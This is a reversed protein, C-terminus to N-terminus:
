GAEVCVVSLSTEFGAAHQHGGGGFSKAIESVDLGNKDSRLSFQRKGDKIRDFYVAGFPRGEALKGAIESVLTSANVVLVKHGCIEMEVANRVHSDVIQQDRRLIAEGQECSKTFSYDLYLSDWVKFDLPFSRLWANYERSHTLQWRWLDRDETYDVLLNSSTKRYGFFTSEKVDGFADILWEWALRAGSKEMDFVFMSKPDAEKRLTEMAAASTKHHDLVVLTRCDRLIDRMVDESYCFDLIYVKAGKVDPPNSGHHAPHFEAQPFQKQFLWAACFGDWCGAHYIVVIRDM